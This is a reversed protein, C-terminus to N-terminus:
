LGVEKLPQKPRLESVGHGYRAIQSKVSYGSCYNNTNEFILKLPAFKRNEPNEIDPYYWVVKQIFLGNFRM